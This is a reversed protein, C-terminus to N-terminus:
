GCCKKGAKPTPKSCCAPAEAVPLEFVTETFKQMAATSGKEVRQGVSMADRIQTEELGLSRAQAVHYSLCPQCHAAVSAGVAIL